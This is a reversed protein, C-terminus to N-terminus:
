RLESAREKLLNAESTEGKLILGAPGSKTAAEAAAPAEELRVELFVHYGQKKAAEILGKAADNWPIVLDSVGLVTTSPVTSQTWRVYVKAVSAPAMVAVLFVTCAIEKWIRM